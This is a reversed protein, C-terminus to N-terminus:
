IASKGPAARTIVTSPNLKSPSPNRSTSSGRMFIHSQAPRIMNFTSGRTLERLKGVLAVRECILWPGGSFDLEAFALPGRESLGVHRVACPNRVCAGIHLDKSSRSKHIRFTTFECVSQIRHVPTVINRNRRGGSKKTTMPMAASALEGYVEAAGDLVKVTTCFASARLKSGHFVLSLGPSPM